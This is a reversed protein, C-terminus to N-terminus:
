RVPAKQIAEFTILSRRYDIIAQVESIRAQAAEIRQEEEKLENQLDSFFISILLAPSIM